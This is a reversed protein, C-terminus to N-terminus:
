YCVAVYREFWPSDDAVYHRLLRRTAGRRSDYLASDIVIAYIIEKAAAPPNGPKEAKPM